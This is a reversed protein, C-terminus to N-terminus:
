IAFEKIIQKIKLVDEKHTRMEKKWFDIDITNTLLIYQSQDKLYHLYTKFRDSLLLLWPSLQREHILRSIDSATLHSIVDGLDTELIESLKNLTRLSDNVKEVPSVNTDYYDIFFKYMRDDRWLNPLINNTVMFKIYLKKNPIGKINSFKVFDIFCSFYKSHLFTLKNKEKASRMKMWINYYVFATNGKSTLLVANRKKYTCNHKDYKEKTSLKKECFECEFFSVM